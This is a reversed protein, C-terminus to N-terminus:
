PDSTATTAPSTTDSNNNNSNYCTATTVTASTTTTVTTTTATNNYMMSELFNALATYDKCHRPLMQHEIRDLEMAIWADIGAPAGRVYDWCVLEENSSAEVSVPM